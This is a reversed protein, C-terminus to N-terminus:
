YRYGGSGQLEAMKEEVAQAQHRALLNLQQPNLGEADKGAMMRGGSSPPIINESVESYIGRLIKEAAVVVNKFPTEMIDDHTYAKGDEFPTTLLEIYFSESLEADEAHGNERLIELYKGFPADELPKRVVKVEPADL